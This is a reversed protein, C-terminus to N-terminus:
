AEELKAVVRDGFESCGITKCNDSAIDITRFGDILVAEVADHIARAEEHLSFTHQLMMGISLISAIPNAKDQGMIDPASGHAPEYLGMPGGICASPLMGLSGVLAGGLDSLIDGFMNGTVLVDLSDPKQVMLPAASDVYQHRTQVDPFEKSLEEMTERWLAMSSLVNAKDVSCVMKRRHRSAEYALKGIRRIEPVSYRLTDFASPVGEKEERGRPESTYIGGGLERIILIDVVKGGAPTMCPPLWVPRLNAWNGVRLTLLAAREPREAQPLTPDRDPLGVAGLFVADRQRCAQHVFDPLAKGHEDIAAWGVPFEQLDFSHGFKRGAAELAKVAQDTVERGIGDGPLIAIRM